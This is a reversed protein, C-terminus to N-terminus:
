CSFRTGTKACLQAEDVVVRGWQKELVPVPQLRVHGAYCTIMLQHDQVLVEAYRHPAREGGPASVEMELVASTHAVNLNLPGCAHTSAAQKELQQKTLIVIDASTNAAEVTQQVLMTGTAFHQEIQSEWHHRM